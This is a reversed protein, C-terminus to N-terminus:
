RARGNGTRRGGGPGVITETPSKMEYCVGRWRIRRTTASRIFNYLFVLSVLPWLLCFMWWPRMIEDRASPLAERAALLRLAGKASGLSYIVALMVLAPTVGWGHFARSSVFAPGGFFVVAFLSNSILGVWWMRPRYVRTIIVQRTTFEMLKGFGVEERSRMLCRPVFIIRLRADQMARTLAYDDSVASQWRDRIGAREFTERLIATAGGWAFNRGHDGLTTAVSGNWASLMASWLGGREPLYWRYGTAAGVRSDALPAVLARLWDKAARADSDVFALAESQAGVSALASLLNNIKESRTRSGGAIILRSEVQPHKAMAKEILPRAADDGAAIAFVIEYAPYDQEFLADLNEELEADVGKCPAIIAAKPAFSGVPERLSRRIFTRFRVGEILSFLGQIILLAALVYFLYVM